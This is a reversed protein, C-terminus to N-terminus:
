GAVSVGVGAVGEFAILGKLGELAPRVREDQASRLLYGLHKTVKAHHIPESRLLIPRM